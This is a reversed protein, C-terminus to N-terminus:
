RKIDNIIQNGNRSAPLMFKACYVHQVGEFFNTM